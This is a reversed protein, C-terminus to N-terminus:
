HGGPMVHLTAIILAALIAFVATVVNALLLKALSPRNGQRGRAELLCLPFAVAGALVCALLPLNGERMTTFQVLTPPESWADGQGPYLDADPGVGGPKGDQGYSFLVYRGAEIKYQFPRGWGDVPQGEPDVRVRKEKVVNLDTLRAPWDGTKERARELDERLRELDMRTLYPPSNLYINRYSSWACLYATASIILATALCLLLRPGWYVLVKPIPM